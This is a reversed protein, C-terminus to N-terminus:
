QLVHPKLLFQSRGCTAERAKQLHHSNSSTRDPPRQWCALRASSILWIKVCRSGFPVFKAIARLDVPPSSGSGVIVKRGVSPVGADTVVYLFAPGPPYVRADPPGTVTLTNRSSSLTSALKVFRQDMAVAHTHFGLDILVVVFISIYTVRASFFSHRSEM